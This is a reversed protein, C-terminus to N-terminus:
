RTEVPKQFWMDHIRRQLAAFGPAEIDALSFQHGDLEARV